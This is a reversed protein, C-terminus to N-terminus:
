DLLLRGAEVPLRSPACRLGPDIGPRPLPDARPTDVHETIRRLM